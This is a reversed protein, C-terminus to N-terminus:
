GYHIDAAAAGTGVSLGTVGVLRILGDGSNVGVTADQHYIWTDGSFEFVGTAGAAVHGSVNILAQELTTAAGVFPTLPPTVSTITPGLDLHDFGQLFDTVELWADVKAGTVHLNGFRPASSGDQYLSITDHSPTFSFGFGTTLKSVGPNISRALDIAVQDDGQGLNIVNALYDSGVRTLTVGASASADVDSMNVDFAATLRGLGSIHISHPSTDANSAAHFASLTSDSDVSLQITGGVGSVTVTPGGLATGVHDLHLNVRSGVQVSSRGLFVLQTRHNFTVDGGAVNRLGTVIGDAIDSVVVPGGTELWIDQVGSFGTAAVPTPQPPGGFSNHASTIVLHEVGATHLLRDQLGFDADRFDVAARLTDDGSGGDVTSGWSWRGTITILDNGDGGRLTGTTFGGLIDVSPNLTEVTISDDGAGGDVLGGIAGTVGIADDGAAALVSQGSDLGDPGTITDAGATSRLAAAADPTVSQDHHFTIAAGPASAAHPGYDGILDTGVKALGDPALDRLLADNAQAYTGTDELAAQALLWGALAAKTGLGNAGDGAAMAFYAARSYTGGYGDPVQDNLLHDVKDATPAFGFIETYAKTLTESLSLSGYAGQFFAHGDGGVALNVAFNIYRNQVNFPQYYASNLNNANPGTPSVLYDLGGYGPTGGTFFQYSLTAVSTTSAALGVIANLAAAPTTANPLRGALGELTLEDSHSATVGYDLRLVHSYWTRLMQLENYIAM